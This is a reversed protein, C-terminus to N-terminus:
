KRGAEVILDTMGKLMDGIRTSLANYMVTNQTFAAMETDPNVNNGDNRMVTDAVTHVQPAVESLRSTGAFDVHRDSSRRARLGGDDNLASRLAHEFTVEQRKYNPTNINAMNNAIVETRLASAGLAGQLAAITTHFGTNNLM